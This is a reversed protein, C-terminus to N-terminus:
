VTTVQIRPMLELSAERNDDTYLRLAFGIQRVHSLCTALHAKCKARSLAPLLMGALMASTAVVVLLEIL